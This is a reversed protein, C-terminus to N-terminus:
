KICSIHWDNWQRCDPFCGHRCSVADRPQMATLAHTKCCYERSPEGEVVEIALHWSPRLRGFLPDQKYARAIQAPTEHRLSDEPLLQFLSVKMVHLRGGCTKEIEPAGTGIGLGNGDQPLLANVPGPVPGPGKRRLMTSRASLIRTMSSAWRSSTSRRCGSASPM